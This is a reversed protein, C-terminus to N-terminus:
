KYREVIARAAEFNATTLTYMGEDAIAKAFVELAAVAAALDARLRTIEHAAEGLLAAKKYYPLPERMKPADAEYEASLERLRKEIESM